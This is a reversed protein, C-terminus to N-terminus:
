GEKIAVVVEHALGLGLDEGRIEEFCNSVPNIRELGCERVPLSWFRVGTYIRMKM